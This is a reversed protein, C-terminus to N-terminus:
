SENILSGEPVWQGHAMAKAILEALSPHRRAQTGVADRANLQISFQGGNQRSGQSAHLSARVLFRHAALVLETLGSFDYTALSDHIRVRFGGPWWEAKKWEGHPVINYPAGLACLVRVCRRQEETLVIGLESEVWSDGSFETV